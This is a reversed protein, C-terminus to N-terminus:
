TSVYKTDVRNMLGVKKMEQLATGDMYRGWFGDLATSITRWLLYTETVKM